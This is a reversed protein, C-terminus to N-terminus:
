DQCLEKEKSRRSYLHQKKKHIYACVCVRVHINTHMHAHESVNCIYHLHLMNVILEAKANEKM